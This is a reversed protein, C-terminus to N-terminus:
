LVLFESFSFKCKVPFMKGGLLLEADEVEVAEIDFFQNQFQDVPADVDVGGDDLGFDFIEEFNVFVLEAIPYELALQLLRGQINTGIVLQDVVLPLFAELVVFFLSVLFDVFVFGELFGM